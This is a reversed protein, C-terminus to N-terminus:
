KSSWYMAWSKVMSGSYSMRWSSTVLGSSSGACFKTLDNCGLTSLSGSWGNSRSYSVYESLSGSWFGSLSLCRYVKQKKRSRIM